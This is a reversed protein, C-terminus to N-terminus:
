TYAKLESLIFVWIISLGLIKWLDNWSIQMAQGFSLNTNIRISNWVFYAIIFSAATTLGDALQALRRHYKPRWIM